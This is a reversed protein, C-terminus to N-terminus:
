VGSSVTSRRLKLRWPLRAASSINRRPLSRDDGAAGALMALGALSLDGYPNGTRRAIAGIAYPAFTAVLSGTMALLLLAAGACAVPIAGHYRREGHRDSHRSVAVMAVLGVLGPIM